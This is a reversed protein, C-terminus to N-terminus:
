TEPNWKPKLPPYSTQPLRGYMINKNNEGGGIEKLYMMGGLWGFLCKEGSERLNTGPRVVVM